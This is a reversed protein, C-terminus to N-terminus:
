AEERLVRLFDAPIEHIGGEGQVPEVFAAAVTCWPREAIELKGAAPLAISLQTGLAGRVRERLGCADGSEIWGVNLRSALRTQGRYLPSSTLCLAGLTKGHFSRELALFLQEGRVRENREMLVRHLEDLERPLDTGLLGRLREAMEPPVDLPAGSARLEHALASYARVDSEAEREARKMYELVSHKIAAEITEAGSNGFAAVYDAGTLRQIRDSLMRALTGSAARNSHQAHLPTGAEMLARAHAVLEPHNHGFLTSGYGGLMDLVEVPGKPSEYIMRDGQAWTYQVSLKLCDLAETYRPRVYQQYEVPDHVERRAPAQAANGVTPAAAPAAAAHQAAPKAPRAGTQAPILSLLQAALQALTTDQSLTGLPLKMGVSAE